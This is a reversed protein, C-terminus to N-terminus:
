FLELDANNGWPVYQEPAREKVLAIREDVVWCFFEDHRASCEHGALCVWAEFVGEVMLRGLGGTKYKSATGALQSLDEM